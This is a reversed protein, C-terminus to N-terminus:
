PSLNTFGRTCAGDTHRRITDELIITSSFGRVVRPCSARSSCSRKRMKLIAAIFLSPARFPFCKTGEPRAEEKGGPPGLVRMRRSSSRQSHERAALIM